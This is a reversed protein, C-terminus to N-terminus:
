RLEQLQLVLDELEEALVAGDREVLVDLVHALARDERLIGPEEVGGRRPSKRSAKFCTTFARRAGLLEVDARSRARCGDRSDIM